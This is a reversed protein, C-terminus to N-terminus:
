FKNIVISNSRLQQKVQESTHLRTELVRAQSMFLRFLQTFVDTALINQTYKPLLTFIM